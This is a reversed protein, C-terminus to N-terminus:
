PSYISLPISVVTLGNMITNLISCTVPNNKSSNRVKKHYRHCLYLFTQQFPTFGTQCLIFLQACSWFHPFCVQFWLGLCWYALNSALPFLPQRLPLSYTATRLPVNKMLLSVGFLLHTSPVSQHKYTHYWLLEKNFHPLFLQEKTVFRVRSQLLILFNINLVSFIWLELSLHFALLYLLCSMWISSFFAFFRDIVCSFISKVGFLWRLCFLM